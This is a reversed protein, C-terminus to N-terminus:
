CDSAVGKLLGGGWCGEGVRPELVWQDIKQAELSVWDPIRVCPSTRAKLLVDRLLM